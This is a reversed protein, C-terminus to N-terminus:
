KGGVLRYARVTKIQGRTRLNWRAFTSPRYGKRRMEVDLMRGDAVKHKRLFKLIIKECAAHNKALRAM